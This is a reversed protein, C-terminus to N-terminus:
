WWAEGESPLRLRRGRHPRARPVPPPDRPGAPLDADDARLRDHAPGPPPRSGRGPVARGPSPELRARRAPRRQHRRRAPRPSGRDRRADPARPGPHAQPEQPRHGRAHHREHDGRRPRLRLSVGRQGALPGLPLPHQRRLARAEAHDGPDARRRRAGGLAELPLRGGPRRRRDRHARHQLQGQVRALGRRRPRRGGGEPRRLARRRRGLLWRDHRSRRLAQTRASAAAGVPRGAPGVGRGTYDGGSARLPEHHLSGARSRELGPEDQRERQDDAHHGDAREAVAPEPPADAARPEVGQEHRERRDGGDPVALHLREVRGPRTKVM